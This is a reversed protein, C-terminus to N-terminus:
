RKKAPSTPKSFLKQLTQHQDSWIQGGWVALKAPNSMVQKNKKDSSFATNL